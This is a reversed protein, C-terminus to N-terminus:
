ITKRLDSTDMGGVSSLNWLEHGLALTYSVKLNNLFGVDKDVHIQALLDVSQHIEPTKLYM